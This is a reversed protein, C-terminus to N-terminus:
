DGRSDLLLFGLAVTAVLWHILRAIVAVGHKLESTDPPANLASLQWIISAVLSSICMFWLALRLIKRDVINRM